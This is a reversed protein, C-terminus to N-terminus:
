LVIVISMMRGGSEDFDVDVIFCGFKRPLMWDRSRM